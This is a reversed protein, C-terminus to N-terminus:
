IKFRVHSPPNELLATASILIFAALMSAIIALSILLVVDDMWSYKKYSMM